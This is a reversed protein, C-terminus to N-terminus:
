GKKKDGNDNNKKNEKFKIRVDSCDVGSCDPTRLLTKAELFNGNEDIDIELSYIDLGLNPDGWLHLLPGEQPGYPTEFRALSIKNGSPDEIFSEANPFASGSIIGSVYLKTKDLNSTIIIYNHLDIDPSQFNSVSEPLLDVFPIVADDNGSIYAHESLGWSTKVGKQDPESTTEYIDFLTSISGFYFTDWRKAQLDFNTIMSLRSTTQKDTDMTFGRNDGKAMFLPGFYAFPAFCRTHVIYNELGELEIADIVRNESFAYPSNHPYKPSLPDIAFFRGIRPDHMRYKYNHSNGEGKLEDDKEQGQFGYRYSEDSAHREPLLM